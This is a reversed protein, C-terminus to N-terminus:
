SKRGKDNNSWIDVGDRLRNPVIPRDHWHSGSNLLAQLFEPRVWKLRERVIGDVEVKIYLGEMTGSVDSEGRAREIDYNAEDCSLQFAAPLQNSVFQSRGLKKLLERPKDPSGSFLVPVSAVPAPRLIEKRRETSLWEGTDKDLLDYEVFYHPLADYFVTHKAYMWEGYLVYRTGLAERLADTHVAAWQKFLSFQMERPGGTLFHGRSQLLLAGDDAFSIGSNAGDVKEEVVVPQRLLTSWEIQELDEDGPQLRSGVLHRTRPYKKISSEM